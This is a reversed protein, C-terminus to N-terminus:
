RAYLISEAEELIISKILDTSKSGMIGGGIDICGKSGIRRGCHIFFDDRGFMVNDELPHLPVRWDGWDGTSNRILDRLLSPDSLEASVVRYRGKPLPGISKKSQCITQNTCDNRGSTAYTALKQSKGKAVFMGQNVYFVLTAVECGSVSNPIGTLRSKVQFKILFM